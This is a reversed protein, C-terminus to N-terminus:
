SCSDYCSNLQRANAEVLRLLRFREVQSRDASTAMWTWTLMRGTPSSVSGDGGYQVSSRSWEKACCQSFRLKTSSQKRGAKAHTASTQRQPLRHPSQHSTGWPQSDVILIACNM